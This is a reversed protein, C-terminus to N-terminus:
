QLLATARFSKFEAAILSRNPPRHQDKASLIRM